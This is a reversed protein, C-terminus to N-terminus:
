EGKAEPRSFHLNALFGRKSTGKHCSLVLSMQHFCVTEVMGECEKNAREHESGIGVFRGNDRGCKVPASIGLTELMRENRLSPICVCPFCFFSGLQQLQFFFHVAWGLPFKFVQARKLTGSIWFHPKLTFHSSSDKYLFVIAGGRRSTASLQATDYNFYFCKMRRSIIQLLMSNIKYIAHPFSQSWCFRVYLSDLTMPRSLFAM